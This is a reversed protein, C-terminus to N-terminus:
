GQAQARQQAAFVPLVQASTRNGDFAIFIGPTMHSNMPLVTMSDM